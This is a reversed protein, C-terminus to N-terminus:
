FINLISKTKSGIDEILLKLRFDKILLSSGIKELFGIKM